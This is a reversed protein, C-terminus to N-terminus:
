SLLKLVEATGGTKMRFFTHVRLHKLVGTRQLPLFGDPMVPCIPEKKGGEHTWEDAERKSSECRGVARQKENLAM